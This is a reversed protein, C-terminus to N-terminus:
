KARTEKELALAEGINSAEGSEIRKILRDLKAVTLMDKGLYTEYQKSVMLSYEKVKEEVSKQEQEVEKSRARLADLEERYRGKIDNTLEVSTVSDFKTLEEKEEAAVRNIETEIEELEADFQELGYTSEDKDNEISKQIGKIERCNKQYQQRLVKNEQLVELHKEKILKYGLFYLVGFLIVDAAYTIVLAWIGFKEAFVFLYLGLPLFLLAVLATVAMVCIEVVEKPMFLSYFLTSNCFLPTKNKKLNAKIDIQLEKNADRLEATEENIRASVKISKEKEKKTRVKKRRTGLTSLQGEYSSVIANRRKKLTSDIEDSLEKEKSALTKDLRTEEKLLDANREQYGNLEMVHEKITNLVEVGAYLIANEM